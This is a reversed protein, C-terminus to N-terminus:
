RRRGRCRGPWRAHAEGVAPAFTMPVAVVASPAACIVAASARGAPAALHEFTVGAPTARPAARRGRHRPSM